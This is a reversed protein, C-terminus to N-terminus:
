AMAADVGEAALSTARLGRVGCPVIREFWALDPDVNLAFGHMSRGKTIRVGVAGIKAGGVWVGPHGEMRGAGALGLDALADIVVQEIARVHATTAGPRVPVSVVPYGVLQGPGHYTAAGGRDAREVTAGAAVVDAVLHEPTARVGMTVVHPHELLLLHNATSHRHLARQLALGDRYAVRGLWRARLTM